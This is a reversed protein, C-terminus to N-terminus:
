EKVFGYKSNKIGNFPGFCSFSANKLLRARKRFITKSYIPLV